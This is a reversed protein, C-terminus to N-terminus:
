EDQGTWVDLTDFAIWRLKELCDILKGCRVIKEDADAAV